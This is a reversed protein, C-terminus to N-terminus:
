GGNFRSCGWVAMAPETVDFPSTFALSGQCRVPHPRWYCLLFWARQRLPELDREPKRFLSKKPEVRPNKGFSWKGKGLWAWTTTLQGDAGEKQPSKGREDGYPVVLIANLKNCESTSQPEAAIDGCEQTWPTFMKLPFGLVTAPRTTM